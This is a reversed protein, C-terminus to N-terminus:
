EVLFVKPAKGVQNGLFDITVDGQGTIAISGVVFQADYTGQGSIQVNAWKAYLTGELSGDAANGEIHLTETNWRRQYFLMGDFPGGTGQLPTFQMSANITVGGFNAGDTGAPVQDGDTSDPSGSSPDYNHGTSYFMVGEATVNGGNLTLVNTNGTSSAPRIVYIGPELRVNGGTVRIQDYVGPNMVLTEVGTVPDTEISNGTGTQSSGQGWNVEGRLTSDVGNGTTPTPLNIFPDPFPLSGTELFTPLEAEPDHIYTFSENDADNIGGVIKLEEALLQANNEVKAAWQNNGNNIDEGFEDLGGGESNDVVLGEVVLRGGGKVELGPRATPDLVAVGEGAAVLEYGAVARAVALYQNPVGLVHVFFTNVPNRVIVEVYNMNGAYPGSLPPINVEPPDEANALNNHDVDLIFERATAQADAVSSGQMRDEAAALAAADAANQAERFMALRYGGDVAIGTMGLLAVLGVAMWVLVFGSRRCVLNKRRPNMTKRAALM